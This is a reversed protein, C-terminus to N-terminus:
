KENESEDLVIVAVFGVNLLDRLRKEAERMLGTLNFHSIMNVGAKLLHKYCWLLKSRMESERERNMKRICASSIQTLLEVDCAGFNSLYQNGAFAYGTKGFVQFKVALCSTLFGINLKEQLAETM